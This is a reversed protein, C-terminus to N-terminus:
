REWEPAVLRRKGDATLRVGPERLGQKDWLRCTVQKHMQDLGECYNTYDCRRVEGGRGLRVKEWWDPDALSQRAAGVVDAEGAALIAEAQAFSHIGGTVVVPTELGAARLASRIALSAPVNRGWPGRADAIATPMCEWGSPGTYPYAAQGVRPQSADEFKGGRSLSVFDMGARALELAFFRADEVESGEEITEDALIRCGVVFSPSVRSRV